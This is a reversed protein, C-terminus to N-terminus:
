NKYAFTHTYKLAWNNEPDTVSVKVPYGDRDFTFTHAEKFNSGPSLHYEMDENTSLIGCRTGFVKLYPDLSSRPSNIKIKDVIENRTFHLTALLVNNASYWEIARLNDMGIWKFNIRETYNNKNYKQELRGNNQNYDYLWTKSVGVNSEWSTHVSKVTRGNELTYDVQLKLVNSEFTKATLINGSKSYAVYKTPSYIVKALSGDANYVLSDTGKRVLKRAVNINPNIVDGQVEPVNVTSPQINDKKCATLGAVVIIAIVAPQFFSKM